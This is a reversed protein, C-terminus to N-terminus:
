SAKGRAVTQSDQLQDTISAVSTCDLLATRITDVEHITLPTRAQRRPNTVLDLEASVPLGDEAAAVTRAQEWALSLWEIRKWESPKLGGVDM